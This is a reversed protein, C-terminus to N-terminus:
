KGNEEDKKRPPFATYVKGPRLPLNRLTALESVTVFRFGQETLRDIIGLAATVSSNSMDHLLIVDGDKARRIVWNVVAEANQTAWDRPDVSWLVIPMQRAKSVQTVSDSCCGGPPRLLRVQAGEPLLSQTTTIEQVMDRRSMSNMPKHSYGHCGVEHGEELIRKAIQPFQKVRYGCLFFTAKVQRQSLGDLLAQTFRGSPGDDFTLAAYKTHEAGSVPMIFFSACIVACILRRM